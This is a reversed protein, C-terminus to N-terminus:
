VSHKRKKTKRLKKMKSKRTTKSRRRKVRRGGGSSPLLDFLAAIIIERTYEKSKILDSIKNLLQTLVLIETDNLDKRCYEPIKYVVKGAEKKPIGNTVIDIVCGIINTISKKSLDLLYKKLETKVEDKKKEDM